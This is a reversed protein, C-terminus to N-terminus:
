TGRGNESEVSLGAKLFVGMASSASWRSTIFADAWVCSFDM